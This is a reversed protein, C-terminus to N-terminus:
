VEDPTSLDRRLDRIERAMMANAEALSVEIETIQRSLEAIHARREIRAARVERIERLARRTIALALRSGRERAWGETGLPVPPAGPADSQMLPPPEVPMRALASAVDKAVREPVPGALLERLSSLSMDHFRLANAMIGDRLRQEWSLDVGRAIVDQKVYFANAWTLAGSPAQVQAPPYGLTHILEAAGPAGEGGALQYHSIDRLRWLVFGRERLWADVEGFLPAGRFMPNFCVEIEVFRVGELLDGAGELVSLEHGQVDLKIADVETLGDQMSWEDLRLVPVDITDKPARASRPAALHGLGSEDHPHLSEGGEGAFRMLRTEGTQNSLALPHIERNASGAYRQALRTAEDTDPEFGILRISEGLAEWESAFGWRCGGDVVLLPRDLHHALARVEPRPGSIAGWSTSVPRTMAASRSPKRLALHLTTFVHDRHRAVIFPYRMPAPPDLTPETVVQETALTDDSISLDLPTISEWPHRELIAEDLLPADFIGPEQGSRKGALLFPATVSAVGGPRLVRWVEDIERGFDEIDFRSHRAAHVVADFTEDEYALERSDMHQVVLRRADWRGPWFQGPDTLMASRDSGSAGEALYQDIAFVRGIQPSLWFAAHDSRASLVQATPRLVDGARLTLGAMATQWQDRDERGAPFSGHAALAHAYVDRIVGLLAGDSFDELNALKNLSLHM